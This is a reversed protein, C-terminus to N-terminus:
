SRSQIILKKKQHTLPRPHSKELPSEEIDDTHKAPLTSEKSSSSAPESSTGSSESDSNHYSPTSNDDEAAQVHEEERFADNERKWLETLDFM